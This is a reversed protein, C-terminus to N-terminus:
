ETTMTIGDVDVTSEGGAHVTLRTHFVPRPADTPATATLTLEQWATTLPVTTTESQLTQTWMEQDRFDLTVEATDSASSGRLWLTVSVTQGDSAPNPQHVEAADTLRLFYEGEHAETADEIRAVGDDTFYRWGYGGFPAVEEFGGNAVDGDLGFGSMVDQTGPTWGLTAELHRALTAAMGGHDSECGHWQEFVWPFTAVSMEADEREAVVEHTFNSTENYSWGWANYVVVHAAPYVARLDDLFAHYEARIQAESRGVDNAGLNVVVLDVPNAAFDWTDDAADYTVRSFREHVQAIRSGSWSINAVEADFTRGTIGAYGFHHGDKDVGGRNQESELSYGALNSDGYFEIRRRPRPEPEGLGLGTIVLGTLTANGGYATEKIVEVTHEGDALDDVLPLLAAGAEVEVKQSGLHDGDVVIRVSESRSGPNFLLAAGTGHFTARVTSGQWSCQPADPDSPDWRGIFTLDPDSPAVFTATPDTWALDDVLLDLNPDAALSLTLRRPDGAVTVDGSLETWATDSAAATFLTPADRGSTVALSVDAAATGQLKVWASVTYTQGEQVWPAVDQSLDAATDTRDTLSLAHTGSHADSDTRTGTTTWASSDGSEFGPDALVNWGQPVPPPSTDQTDATDTTDATDATDDTVTTGGTDSSASDTVTTGTDATTAGDSGTCALLTLLPAIM